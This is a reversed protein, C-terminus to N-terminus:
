AKANIPMWFIEPILKKKMKAIGIKNFGIDYSIEKVVYNKSIVKGILYQSFDYNEKEYISPESDTEYWDIADCLWFMSVATGLECHPHEAILKPIEYGDDWNLNEVLSDLEMSSDINEVLKAREESSIEEWLIKSVRDTIKM